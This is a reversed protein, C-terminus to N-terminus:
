ERELSGLTPHRSETEGATKLSKNSLDRSKRKEERGRERKQSIGIYSRRGRDGQREESIYSRWERDGWRENSIDKQHRDRHLHETRQRETMLIRNSLDRSKSKEERGRQREVIEM